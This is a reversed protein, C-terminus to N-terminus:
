AKVGKKLYADLAEQAEKITYEKGDQLVVDLFDREIVTFQKAQKLSAKTYTTEKPKEVTEKDTTKTKAM